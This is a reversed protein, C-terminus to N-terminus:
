KELQFLDSESANELIKNREDSGCILDPYDQCGSFVSCCRAKIPRLVWFIQTAELKIILSRLFLVSANQSLM